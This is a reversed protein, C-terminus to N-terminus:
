SYKMKGMDLNKSLGWLEKIIHYKFKKKKYSSLVLLFILLYIYSNIANKIIIKLGKIRLSIILNFKKPNLIIFIWFYREIKDIKIFNSM